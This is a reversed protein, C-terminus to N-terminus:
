LEAASDQRSCALVRGYDLLKQMEILLFQSARRRYTKDRYQKSEIDEFACSSNM